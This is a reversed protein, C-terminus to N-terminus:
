LKGRQRLYLEAEQLKQKELEFIRVSRKEKTFYGLSVMYFVGFFDIGCAAAYMYHYLPDAIFLIPFYGVIPGSLAIVLLHPPRVMYTEFEGMSIGWWHFSLKASADYYWFAVYHALEHIIVALTLLSLEIFTESVM